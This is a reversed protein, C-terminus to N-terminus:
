VQIKWWWEATWMEDYLRNTEEINGFVREPLYALHDKFAPNGILERICEVPNRRWLEIEETLPKGHRDVRDGKVTIPECEWDPGTPLKNLKKNLKYKSSFSLKSRSKTQFM